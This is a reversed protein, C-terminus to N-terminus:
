DQRFKQKDPQKMAQHLYMTDPDASAKFALLPDMHSSVTDSFFAQYSLREGPVANIGAVTTPTMIASVIANLSIAVRSTQLLPGNQELTETRTPTSQMRTHNPANDHSQNTENFRALSSPASERMTTLSPNAGGNTNEIADTNTKEQRRRRQRPPPSIPPTTASRTRQTDNQHPPKPVAMLGVKQRWTCTPKFHRLSEFKRDHVVHFQPSVYGSDKHMVLSINSAHQPSRGIYIGVQSRNEWKHFPKSDQLESRLAYTPCGFPIWQKYHPAVPSNRFLELPSRRRPDQMLPTKNLRDNVCRMAYPWLHATVAEPCVANAHAFNIQTLDQLIGIKREALGNQHHAGVGAFPLQQQKKLCDDVWANAKFVGNDAHYAQVKVGHELAIREFMDKGKITEKALLTKQMHVYTFRSFNDVFVTDYQYRQKTLKGSIQAVLGPTPSVLQDVSIQEGPLTPKASPTTPVNTRWPRKTQAGYLCSACIPIPCTAFRSLILNMKVMKRLRSFPLHGANINLDLFEREIHRQRGHRAQTKTLTPGNLDM